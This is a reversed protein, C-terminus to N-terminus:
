AVARPEQLLVDAPIGLGKHLRRIMALSLPRKRNLVESVKSKSGIYEELDQPKLGQQDMRFRIAEIPDPLEMPFIRREYEELLLSWLELEEAAATGPQADMLSEVLQLATGYEAENRIIKAEM